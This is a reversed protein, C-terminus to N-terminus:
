AGCITLREDVIGRTQATGRVARRCDDAFRAFTHRSSSWSHQDTQPETDLLRTFYALNVSSLMHKPM